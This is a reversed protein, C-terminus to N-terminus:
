YRAVKNWKLAKRKDSRFLMIKVFSHLFIFCKLIRLLYFLPMWLILRNDLELLAGLFTMFLFVILDFWFFHHTFSPFWGLAMAAFSGVFLLSFLVGEWFLFSTEANIKSKFIQWMKQERYVQWGGQFWRCNQKFYSTMRDPDQTYVELSHAYLTKGLGELHIRVTWLMDETLIEPRLEESLKAFVSTRFTTGCGPLVTICNIYGQARKYTVQMLWYEWTRYSTYLNWSNKISCVRSAIAATSTSADNLIPILKQLYNPALLTDGDCTNVWEYKEALNFHKFATVLAKTKGVNPSLYLMNHMSLYPFTVRNLLEFTKDTSGDDVFYMDEWAVGANRLSQLTKVLVLEENHLPFLFAHLRKTM